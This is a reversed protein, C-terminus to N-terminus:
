RRRARRRRSDRDPRRCAASETRPRHQRRVRRDREARQGAAPADDVRHSRLDGLQLRDAAEGGLGRPAIESKVAVCRPTGTLVVCVIVPAIMPTPEIRRRDATRQPTAPRITHAHTSVIGADADDGRDDVPDDRCSRAQNGTTAFAHLKVEGIVNLATARPLEVTFVAGGERGTRPASAHGRAARDPAQRDRPRPRHRGSGNRRALAGQRRPLLARLRAAPRSGSHGPGRDAVTLVCRPAAASAAGMVITSGEPSYNTANELLNRLADHLKAPDGHVTPADAAIDSSSTSGGRRSRRCSIPRSAPSCRESRARRRARLPEQGADLRALRLLDRM